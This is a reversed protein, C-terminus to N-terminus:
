RRVPSWAVEGAVAAVGRPITVYEPVLVAGEVVGARLRAAGLGLLASALGTRALAGRAVADEPARDVLDVAVLMAGPAPDGNSEDSPAMTARGDRVLYRGAPGAPLLLAVEAGPPVAGTARAAAALAVGTPVGVLPAGAARAIGHATALGVRLGTFGGPGTGAVIGALAGPGPRGIGARALLAAVRVLLEEAHRHGAEWEEVDLLGGDLTGLAVLARTTATEIALVPASPLRDAPPATM